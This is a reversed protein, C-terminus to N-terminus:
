EAGYLYIRQWSCFFGLQQCPM